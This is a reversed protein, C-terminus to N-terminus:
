AHIKHEVPKFHMLVSKVVTARLNIIPFYAFNNSWGALTKWTEKANKTKIFEGAIVSVHQRRVASQQNLRFDLLQM